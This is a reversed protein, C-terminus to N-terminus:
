YTEDLINRFREDFENIDHSIVRLGFVNTSLLDFLNQQVTTMRARLLDYGEGYENRTHRDAIEVIGQLLSRKSRRLETRYLCLAGNLQDWTEHYEHTDIALGNRDLSEILQKCNDILCPGITERDGKSLLSHQYEHMLQLIPGALTSSTSNIVGSKNPHRFTIQNLNERISVLGPRMRSEAYDTNHKYSYNEM